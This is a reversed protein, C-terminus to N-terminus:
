KSQNRLVGSLFSLVLVKFTEDSYVPKFPELLIKQYDTRFSFFIRCLAYLVEDRKGLRALEMIRYGQREFIKKFSERKEPKNIIKETNVLTYGYSNLSDILDSINENAITKYFKYIKNKEDGTATDKALEALSQLKRLLEQITKYTDKFDEGKISNNKIKIELEAMFNEATNQM